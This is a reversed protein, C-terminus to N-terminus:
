NLLALMSSEDRYSNFARHPRSANEEPKSARASQMFTRGDMQEAAYHNHPRFSSASENSPIATHGRSAWAFRDKQVADILSDLAAEFLTALDGTPSSASASGTDAPARRPLGAPPSNLRTHMMGRAASHGAPAPVAVADSLARGPRRGATKRARQLAPRLWTPRDRLREHTNSSEM